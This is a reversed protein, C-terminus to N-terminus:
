NFHENAWQQHKDSELANETANDLEWFFDLGSLAEVNDITTLHNMLNIGHTSQKFIFAATNFSDGEVVTVIKWYGSPITHKEDAKPLPTM